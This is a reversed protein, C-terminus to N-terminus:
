RFEEPYSPNDKLEELSAPYNEILWVWFATNDIKEKLMNDKRIKWEEKLNPMSILEKLKELMLEFDNPLFSYCLNYKNELENPVSLKGAFSNCKLAPTGLIAAESTMTQSDGLFMSAYYMLSHMKEPAVRLEYAKLEPEIERETTIFIRGLPKLIEVLMLKQELTLGKKGVDHHAKFVNFRMIFFLKDPIIGLENLISSDPIFRKPHLYALEHYGPYYITNSRKRKGFLASPSLLSDAYPNVYKTVLPQVNDDDDDFMISKVKSIKSVHAASVSTGIVFDIRKQICFRLMIIDYQFQKWFKGVLNDSKEPLITYNFGYYSLLRKAIDIDKVTWFIKHGNKELDKALNKFNHVHAPHGIDILINV